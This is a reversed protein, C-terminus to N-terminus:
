SPSPIRFKIQVSIPFITESKYLSLEGCQLRHTQCRFVFDSAEGLLINTLQAGGEADAGDLSRQPFENRGTLKTTLAASLIDAVNSELLM